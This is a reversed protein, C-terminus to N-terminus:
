VIIKPPTWINGHYDTIHISKHIKTSYLRFEYQPETIYYTKFDSSVIHTGCCICNCFPICNKNQHNHSSQETHVVRNNDGYSYGTNCCPM